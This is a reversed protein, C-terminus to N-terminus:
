QLPRMVEAVLARQGQGTRRQQDGWCGDVSISGGVLCGSAQLAAARVAMKWIWVEPQEVTINEETMAIVRGDGIVFALGFRNVERLSQPPRYLEEPRWGLEIARDGWGGELFARLGRMTENWRRPWWDPPRKAELAARAAAHGAELLSIACVPLGNDTAM